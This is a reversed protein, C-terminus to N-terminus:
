KKLKIVTNNTNIIISKNVQVNFFENVRNECKKDLINLLRDDDFDGDNLSEFVTYIYKPIYKYEENNKILDIPILNNIKCYENFQVLLKHKNKLEDIICNKLRDQIEKMFQESIDFSLLISESSDLTFICVVIQRDGYYIKANSNQKINSLFYINYITELIVENFNIKNFSPKILFYLVYKNSQAIINFRNWIKFETSNGDFTILYNLNFHFNTLKTEYKEEFINKFNKFTENVQATKDFFKVISNRIDQYSDSSNDNGSKFHESCKCKYIKDHNEYDIEDSCEDYCYIINYINMITIDSCPGNDIVGLGYYLFIIEFPCLLPLKNYKLHKELKNQINKIIIIIIEEYQKYKNNNNKFTLIPINKKIITSINEDLKEFYQKNPFMDVIGNIFSHMKAAIQLNKEAHNKKGNNNNYINYIMYYEFVYYRIIHHGWDIINQEKIKNTKDDCEILKKILNLNTCYDLINYEEDNKSNCISIIQSFRFSGKINEIKPKFIKNSNTYKSFRSSIDDNNNQLGIYLKEKQRTLAVHLLSEYIIDSDDVGKLGAYKSFIKLSKESLGLLFVVECGNGKSAHISMIRTANESENLNIPKGDESRHLYIYQYYKNSNLNNKWFKDKILVTDRYKTCNFKDIWYKQIESELRNALYNNSLIPFIFMFNKPLYNNEEIEYDIYKLITNVIESIKKSNYDDNITTQEIEFITYPIKDTHKYKCNGDCIGTIPPLNFEDFNVITNVFDIFHHNHFRRVINEGTNKQIYINPLDNTELFTHTNIRNTLSQLKDGITYVNIYTSRMITNMAEIYHPELDQAEDIIVLCKQSLEINIRAYKKCGYNLDIRGNRIKKAISGFFDNSNDVHSSGNGLAFIFSDITGILIQCEKNYVKFRINYQKNKINAIIDINLKNTNYQDMLESYIVHVASHVKTLYIYTTVNAFLDNNQLIQISEYTKGCGAGRQNHYLTPKITHYKFLSDIQSKKFFKIFEKKIHYNIVDIANNKVLNPDIKFIGNSNDKSNYYDLFIFEHSTFNKYKWFEKKFKLQYIDGFNKVKLCDNTCDILWYLQKSDNQYTLKKVDVIDKEIYNYQFELVTDNIIAIFRDDNHLGNYKFENQWTCYWQKCSVTTDILM